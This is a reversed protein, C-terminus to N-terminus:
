RGHIQINPNISGFWFPPGSVCNSARTAIGFSLDVSYSPDSKLPAWMGLTPQLLKTIIERFSIAEFNM